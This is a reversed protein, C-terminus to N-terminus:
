TAQSLAIARCIELMSSLVPSVREPQWVFELMLNLNDDELPLLAIGDPGRWGDIAPVLTCGIGAAVLGLMAANDAGEQVVKPVFGSQRFCDNMHDYYTASSSRPIWIFDEGNLDALWRPPHTALASDRAVALVIQSQRMPIGALSSDDKPRCYMFGGDLETRQMAEIQRGSTMPFLRLEVLPYQKRFSGLAGVAPADLINIGIALSGTLGQQMNRAREVMARADRLLRQADLHLQLGAATLDVGRPRRVLLEVGLESELERIRSTLAPQSMNLQRAAESISRSEAIAVFYRLVRLDM